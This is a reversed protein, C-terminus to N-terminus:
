NRRKIKQPIGFKYRSLIVRNEQRLFHNVPIGTGVITVGYTLAVILWLATSKSGLFILLLTCTRTFATLLVVFETSTRTILNGILPSSVVISIGIFTVILGAVFETETHLPIILMLASDVIAYIMMLLSMPLLYCILTSWPVTDPRDVNSHPVEEQEVSNSSQTAHDDELPVHQVESM